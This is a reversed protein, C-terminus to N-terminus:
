AKCEYVINRGALIEWKFIIDCKLYINIYYHSCRVLLHNNLGDLHSILYPAAAKTLLLCAKENGLALNCCCNVAGLQLSANQGSFMCHTSKMMNRGGMVLISDKVHKTWLKSLKLAKIIDFTILYNPFLFSMELSWSILLLSIYFFINQYFYTRLIHGLTGWGFM